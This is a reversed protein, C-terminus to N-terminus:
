DVGYSIKEMDRTQSIALLLREVGLAAGSSSPMTTMAKLWPEDLPLPAKGVEVRYRNQQEFRKRQIRESTLETCGNILEMGAFFCEFRTSWRPDEALLSANIAQQAPYHTIVLLERDGYRRVSNDYLLDILSARSQEGHLGHAEAMDQLQEISLDFLNANFNADSWELWTMQTIGKYKVQLRDLLDICEGLLQTWTKDIRYWELMTFESRHLRGHEYARFVPCIQYIDKHTQALIQKMQSEPSAHLWAINDAGYGIDVNYLDLHAENCPYSRLCHTQVELAGRRRFFDRLKHLLKSRAILNALSASHTTTPESPTTVPQAQSSM